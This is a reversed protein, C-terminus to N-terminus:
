HEQEAQEDPQELDLVSTRLQLDEYYPCRNIEGGELSDRRGRVLSPTSFLLCIEVSLFHLLIHL